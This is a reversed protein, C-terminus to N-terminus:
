KATEKFKFEYNITECDLQFPIYLEGNRYYAIADDSGKIRLANPISESDFWCDTKGSPVEFGFASFPVDGNNFEFSTIQGDTIHLVFTLSSFFDFHKYVDIGNINVPDYEMVTKLTYNIDYDGPKEILDGRHYQEECSSMMLMGCVAMLVLLYRKM